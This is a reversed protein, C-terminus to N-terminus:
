AQRARNAVVNSGPTSLPHLERAQGVAQAGRASGVTGSRVLPDQLAAAVVALGVLLVAAWRVQSAEWPPGWVQEQLLRFGAPARSTLLALGVVCPVAVASPALLGHWARLGAAVAVGGVGLALAELGIGWVPLGDTRAAVIGAALLWAPVVVALGVSVRVLTRVWRPYPSAALVEGSPDDVTAVWGCALVVGLGRLVSLAWGDDLVPWSALALAVAAVAPGLLPWGLVAYASARVLQATM